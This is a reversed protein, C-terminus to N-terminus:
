YNNQNIIEEIIYKELIQKIPPVVYANVSIKIDVFTDSYEKEKKIDVESEINIFRNMVTQPKIKNKIKVINQSQNLDQEVIINVQHSNFITKIIRPINNTNQVLHFTRKNGTWENIKINEGHVKKLTTDCIINNKMDNLPIKGCNLNELKLIRM